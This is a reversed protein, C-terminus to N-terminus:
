LFSLVHPVVHFLFKVWILLRSWGNKSGVVYRLIVDLTTSLVNYVQANTFGRMLKSSSIQELLPKISIKIIMRETIKKALVCIYAWVCVCIKLTEGTSFHCLLIYSLTCHVWNNIAQVYPLHLTFHFTVELYYYLDFGALVSDIQGWTANFPLHKICLLVM